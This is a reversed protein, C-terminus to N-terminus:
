IDWLSFEDGDGSSEPKPADLPILLEDECTEWNHVTLEETNYADFNSYNEVVDELEQEGWSYDFSIDLFNCHEIRKCGQGAFSPYRAISDGWIINKELTDVLDNIFLKDIGGFDKCHDDCNNIWWWVNEVFEFMRKQSSLVNYLAIDIGYISKVAWLMNEQLEDSNKSLVLATALKRRLIEILINGSGCAPELVTAKLDSLKANALNCMDCVINHPTFVEGDNIKGNNKDAVGVIKIYAELAKQTLKEAQQPTFNYEIM